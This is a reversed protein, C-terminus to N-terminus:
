RNCQASSTKRSILEKIYMQYFQEKHGVNVDKRRSCSTSDVRGLNQMFTVSDLNLYFVTCWLCSFCIVTHCAHWGMVLALLVLFKLDSFLESIRM